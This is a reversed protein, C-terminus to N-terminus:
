AAIVSVKTSGAFTAEERQHKLFRALVKAARSAEDLTTKKNQLLMSLEETTSFILYCMKLGFLTHFKELQNLLGKARTGYEDHCEDNIQAMTDILVDYNSLIGLLAGTRVTWRTPCLPRLGPADPSVQDKLKLFVASRKPSARILKAIESVLCLSDRIIHCSKSAEQLCLNLCHAWCHVHIAAPEEQRIRAAVGRLHGMMNAAGDYGQGRCQSLPLACRILVDKIAKSLTEADTHIVHVFGILDEHIKFGSDVWRICISLQEKNSLDSTEDAMIAFMGAERIDSLLDRLVSHGILQIMENVIVPSLYDKNDLWTRTDKNDIAVLMLLQRLNEEIEKHGRIALGQRLLFRLCDLQKLLMQRRTSHLISGHHELLRDVGHGAQMKKFVVERHLDSQQHRQFASLAKKWNDFGKDTFSAEVQTNGAIINMSIASLLVPSPLIYEKQFSRFENKNGVRKKTSLIVADDKPQFPSERGSCCEADCAKERSIDDECARMPPREPQPVATDTNGASRPTASTSDPTTTDKGTDTKDGSVSGGSQGHSTREHTSARATTTDDDAHIEAAATSRFGTAEKAPVSTEGVKM